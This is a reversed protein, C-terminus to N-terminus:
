YLVQFRILYHQNRVVACHVKHEINDESVDVDHFFSSVNAIIGAAFTAGIVGVIVAYLTEMSTNPTFDGYGM